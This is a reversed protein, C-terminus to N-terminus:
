RNLEVYWVDPTRIGPRTEGGLMVVGEGMPVLAAGARAARASVEAESWQETRPDFRWLAARFRYYAPPHSLYERQRSADCSLGFAFIERNVGGAALLSGDALPVAATGTMTGGDPLGAIREWRGTKLDCRYGYDAVTRRVPDFGGWVYLMGERALAVPQVFPEPMTAVVRWSRRGSKTDCALVAPSPKGEAMGGALYLVGGCMAAAGQEVAFPLDELRRVEVKRGRLRLSYVSRLAGSANAGGAVVVEDPLSYSAGYAAPEPLRGVASWRPHRGAADRLLWITDYFRKRGGEAAPVDPFNAGGAAIVADGVAGAYLASVGLGFDADRATMRPLARWAAAALTDRGFQGTQPGTPRSESRQPIGATMRMDPRDCRLETRDGIPDSDGDAWGSMLPRVAAPRDIGGAARVTGTLPLVLAGAMCATCLLDTIRIKM